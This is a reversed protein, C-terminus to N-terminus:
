QSLKRIIKTCSISLPPSIPLPVTGEAPPPLSPSPPLEDPITNYFRNNEYRLNCSPTLVRVGLAQYCCSPVYRISQNLCDSCEKEDLDPTCQLLAYIDFYTSTASGTALKRISGGAAAERRLRNLVQNFTGSVDTHKYKM